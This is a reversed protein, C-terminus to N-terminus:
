QSSASRCSGQGDPKGCAPGGCAPGRSVPGSSGHSCAGPGAASVGLMVAIATGRPGATAPSPRALPVTVLVVVLGAVRVTGIVRTATVSRAGVPPYMPNALSRLM